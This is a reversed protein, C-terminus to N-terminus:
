LRHVILQAGHQPQLTILSYPCHAYSPSLDFSFHQLMMALAIKAEIMAFNQGICTRQGFGFPFYVFQNKTAKLVGESFRQPNFEKCDEGWIEPDHYVLLSPVFLDVGAPLSLEGLKTEHYVHRYQGTVPPYLRLVEHLIMTVIKFQGISEYDPMNKGCIRHVEERARTQWAPYMSLLILTWTLLSSTTDHGAFYFLKCEEIVEDITLGELKLGNAANEHVNHNSQLLLSLLDEGGSEGVEMSKEKKHILSRIIAKIENDLYYRRRNKKTPLFRFGPIYPIWSAEMMLQIQEQQFEFVKQGERYNSGFATRSIVDATLAKLEIWVDLECSGEPGFLMEWKSIMESCSTCFAPVMGKLKALHFAPNLINRHQVWKDGEVLSVGEALLRQLPNLLPKLFNGNKNALVEKILEVDQIIIRPNKGYWIISLKGFQEVTSHVFPLARPSIHHHLEMPKSLAEKMIKVIDSLDGRLVKYPRGKIGQKKLQKEIMRPRWWVVHVVTLACYLLLLSSLTAAMSIFSPEM